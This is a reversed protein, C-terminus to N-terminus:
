KIDKYVIGNDALVVGRYANHILAEIFEYDPEEPLVSTAAAEEVKVLLAEIEESVEKYGLRGLKIDLLHASEPCPFTVYGTTLLEVAELGVRVAHSLAKWDVGENQQAQKARAGYGDAVKRYIKAADFVSANFAVKRDCCEFFKGIVGNSGIAQEVIKCHEPHNELLKDLTFAVQSVRTASGHVEFLREFAEAAALAAAVRSGKLGYKNAQQRCYGLFAASKRSLLRHKNNRLITWYGDNRLVNEEPAFLMDIALTQGDAAMKLFQQLSYAKDDVDTAVNREGELKERKPTVEVTEPVRQTLIDHAKPMFVSAYDTDSDPTNTGYLHSGVKIRTIFHIDNM